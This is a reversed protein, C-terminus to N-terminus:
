LDALLTRRLFPFYFGVVEAQQLRRRLEDLDLQFDQDMLRHESPLTPIPGTPLPALPPAHSAGTCPSRRQLMAAVPGIGAATSRTPACRIRGMAGGPVRLRPCGDRAAVDIAWRMRGMAGCDSCHPAVGVSGAGDRQRVRRWCVPRSWTAASRP